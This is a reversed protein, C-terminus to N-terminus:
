CVDSSDYKKLVLSLLVELDVFEIKILLLISRMNKNQLFNLTCHISFKSRAKIHLLSFTIVKLVFRLPLAFNNQESVNYNLFKGWQQDNVIIQRKLHSSEETQLMSEVSWKQIGEDM